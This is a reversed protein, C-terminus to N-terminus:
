NEYNKAHIYIYIDISLKFIFHVLRSLNDRSSVLFNYSM